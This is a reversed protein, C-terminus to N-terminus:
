DSTLAVPNTNQQLFSFNMHSAEKITVFFIISLKPLLLAFSATRCCLLSYINSIHSPLFVLVFTLSAIIAILEM